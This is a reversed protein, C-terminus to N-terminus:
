GGRTIGVPLKFRAEERIKLGSDFIWVKYFGVREIRGSRGGRYSNGM